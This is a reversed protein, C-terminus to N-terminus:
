ENQNHHYQSETVDGTVVGMNSGESVLLGNVIKAV